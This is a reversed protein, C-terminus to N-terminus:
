SGGRGAAVAIRKLSSSLWRLSTCAAPPV